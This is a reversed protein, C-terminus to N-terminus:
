KQHFHTWSNFKLINWLKSDDCCYCMIFIMHHGNHYYLEGAKFKGPLWTTLFLFYAQTSITDVKLKKHINKTTRVLFVSLKLGTIKIIEACTYTWIETVHTTRCIEITCVTTYKLSHFETALNFPWHLALRYYM